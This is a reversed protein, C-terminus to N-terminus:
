LIDNARTYEVPDDRKQMVAETPIPQSTTQDKLPLVREACKTRNWISRQYPTSTWSQKRKPQPESNSQSENQM